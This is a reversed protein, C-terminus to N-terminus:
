KSPGLTIAGHKQNEMIKEEVLYSRGRGCLNRVRGKSRAFRDGRSSECINIPEDEQSPVTLKSQFMSEISKGVFFML